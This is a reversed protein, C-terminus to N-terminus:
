NEIPTTLPDRSKALDVSLREATTCQASHPAYPLLARVDSFKLICRFLKHFTFLHSM